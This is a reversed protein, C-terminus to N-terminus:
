HATRDAKGSLKMLDWGFIFSKDKFYCLSLEDKTATYAIKPDGEMNKCLTSTPNVGGSRWRIEKPLNIKNTAIQYALCVKEKCENTESIRVGNVIFYNKKTGKERDEFLYDSTSWAFNLFLVTLSVLKSIM